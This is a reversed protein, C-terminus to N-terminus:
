GLSHYGWLAIVHVAGNNRIHKAKSPMDEPSPKTGLIYSVMLASAAEYIENENWGDEESLSIVATRAGQVNPITKNLELTGPIEGDHAEQWRLARSAIKELIRDAEYINM